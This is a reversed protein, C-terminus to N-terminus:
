QKLGMDEGQDRHALNIGFQEMVYDKTINANELRGLFMSTYYALAFYPLSNEKDGLKLMSCARNNIKYPMPRLRCHMVDLEEGKISYELSEKYHNSRWMFTSYNSLVTSYMRVKEHEDVYFRDMSEILDEFLRLGDREKGSSCLNIAMLNIAIVDYYTLRTRAALGIDFNKRTINLVDHLMALHEPSNGNKYGFIEAKALAIFQLNINSKKFRENAILKELLEEAELYKRHVLLSNIENRIQKNAFDERNPFTDFYHDIHRGLRQMLAELLYVKDLPYSKNELKNLTGKSCLGESLQETTLGAEARLSGIFSGIDRRFVDKGIAYTPETMPPRIKEIEFAYISINNDKAFGLMKDTKAHRRLTIYGAISLSVLFSLEDNKELAYLCYIKHEMFDPTYFGNNRRISIKLGVECANLAESYNKEQIYLQALTLLIPAIMREKDRDDQPMLTLGLLINKLLKKAVPLNGENIYSRALSHLLPGEEFILADGDFPAEALEPYTIDLGENILQRIEVPDKGQAEMLIVEQNILRQRNIGEAFSTDKKMESLLDLGKQCFASDDRAHTSYFMLVKLNRLMEITQNEMVPCFFAEVPMKLIDLVSLLNEVRIDQRMKEARFITLESLIANEEKGSTSMFGLMTQRALAVRARIEKIVYNPIFSPM